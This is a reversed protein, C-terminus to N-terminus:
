DTFRYRVLTFFAEFADRWGIKKGQARTRFHYCDATGPHAGPPARRAGDGRPLVRIERLAAPLSKLLDARFM